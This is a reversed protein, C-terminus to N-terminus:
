EETVEESLAEASDEETGEVVKGQSDVTIYNDFIRRVIVSLLLGGFGIVFFIAIPYVKVLLGCALVIIVMLVSFPLHKVAMMASNIIIRKTSNEFKALIPFIYVATVISLMAFGILAYFLVRVLMSSEYKMWNYTIGIDYYLIVAVAAMILELIVGQKFNRKFSRFYSQFVYGEEDRVTKMAVYFLGTISPGITVLPLSTVLVLINLLIMDWVKGMFRFFGNDMDFLHNM